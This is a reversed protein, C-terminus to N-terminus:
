RTSTPTPTTWSTGPLSYPAVVTLVHCGLMRVCLFLLRVPCHHFARNGRRCDASHGWPLQPLRGPRQGPRLVAGPFLSPPPCAHTHSVFSTSLAPTKPSVAGVTEILFKVIALHGQWAARTLACSGRNNRLRVDAGAAHLLRLIPLQGREAAMIAATDGLATVSFLCCGVFTHPPPALRSLRLANNHRVAIWIWALRRWCCRYSTQTAATWQTTCRLRGRQTKPTCRLM